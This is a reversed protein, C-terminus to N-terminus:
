KVIIRVNIGTYINAFAMFATMLASPEGANEITEVKTPASNFIMKSGIKMKTKLHPISPAAQAVIIPCHAENIRDIM